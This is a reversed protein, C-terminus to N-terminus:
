KQQNVLSRNEGKIYNGFRVLYVYREQNRIFSSRKSKQEETMEHGDLWDPINPRSNWKMWDGWKKNLKIFNLPMWKFQKVKTGVHITMEYYKKPINLIKFDKQSKQYTHTLIHQRYEFSKSKFHGYIM